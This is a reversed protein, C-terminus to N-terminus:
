RDPRNVEITRHGREQLFRSLGAGYSGTGEIGFARVSGFSRARTELEQYGRRSAPLTMAGLRAGLGNIAAAAHAEKHTDIGIIIEAPDIDQM